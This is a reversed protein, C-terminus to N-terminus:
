RTVKRRRREVVSDLQPYKAVLDDALRPSFHDNIRVHHNARYSAVFTRTSFRLEGTNLAHLAAHELAGWFQKGDNSSLFENYHKTRSDERTYQEGAPGGPGPKSLPVAGSRFKLGCNRCQCSDGHGTYYICECVSGPSVPCETSGRGSCSQERNGFLDTAASGIM